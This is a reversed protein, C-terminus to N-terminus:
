LAIKNEACLRETLAGEHAKTQHWGAVEADIFYGDKPDLEFVRSQPIKKRHEDNTMLVTKDNEWVINWWADFPLPHNCRDFILAYTESRPHTHDRALVHSPKKFGNRAIAKIAEETIGVVRWSWSEYGLVATMVSRKKAPSFHSGHILKYMEYMSRKEDATPEVFQRKDKKKMTESM